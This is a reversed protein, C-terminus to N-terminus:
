SMFGKPKAEEKIKEEWESLGKADLENVFADWNEKTLNRYGLIFDKIGNRYLKQLNDDMKEFSFGDIWPKSQMQKLIELSDM